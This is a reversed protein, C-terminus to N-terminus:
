SQGDKPPEKFDDPSIIDILRETDKRCIKTLKTGCNECYYFSSILENPNSMIPPGFYWDVYQHCKPCVIFTINKIM